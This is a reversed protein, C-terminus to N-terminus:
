LGLLMAIGLSWCALALPVGIRFFTHKTKHHFIGMGLLAGLAGGLLAISLLRSEPIRWHHKRARRKDIGYLIFALVNMFCLYVELLIIM